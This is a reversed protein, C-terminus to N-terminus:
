GGLKDLAGTIYNGLKLKNAPNINSNLDLDVLTKNLISTTKGISEGTTNIIVQNVQNYINVAEGELDLGTNQKVYELGRQVVPNSLIPALLPGLPTQSLSSVDNPNAQEISANYWSRYTFQTMLEHVNNQDLNSLTLPNTMVPYADRLVVAHTIRDSMDLQYITISVSYDKLYGVEHTTPDIVMAMWKDIIDKEIMDNSVKFVFQQNGYTVSQGVKWTDGNNKTEAINIIKGPLETQSCMMDLGRTYETSTPGTFIKIVKVIEGITRQLPSVDKEAVALEQQLKEPLPILVQFRNTRALGNKRLHASYEKFTAM